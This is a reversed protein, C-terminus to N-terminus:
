GLPHEGDGELWTSEAKKRARIADNIDRYVGLHYQKGKRKINAGWMGTAKHWSVGRHGSSSLQHTKNMAQEHSTSWRVNGPEYNGDNDIRDISHKNSPPKGIYKEFAKYSKLWEESMSIGRAGYRSYHPSKPNHCRQKIRLWRDYLPKEKNRYYKNYHNNCYGRAILKNNCCDITCNM